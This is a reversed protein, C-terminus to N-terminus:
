ASGCRMGKGARRPRGPPGVGQGPTGVFDGPGPVPAGELPYDLMRIMALM